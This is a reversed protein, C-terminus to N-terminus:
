NREPREAYIPHTGDFFAMELPMPEYGEAKLLALLQMQERLRDPYTEMDYNFITAPRINGACLIFLKGIQTEANDFAEKLESLCWIRDNKKIEDLVTQLYYELPKKFDSEQRKAAREIFDQERRRFVEQANSMKTRWKAYENQPTDPKEDNKYYAYIGITGFTVKYAYADAGPNLYRKIEEADKPEEWKRINNIWRYGIDEGDNLERAGAQQLLIRMRTVFHETYEDNIANAIIRDFYKEGAQEWVKARREPNEIRAIQEIQLLTVGAAWAKTLTENDTLEAIKARKKVTAKALGTMKAVSELNEGLDLMLQVAGVQEPITLDARQMNEAIMTAIQKEHSMEVIICTVNELNLKKAAALRLHGIVCVYETDQVIEVVTLPQLIGSERISAALETVDGVDKRPNEPHGKIRFTPIDIIREM